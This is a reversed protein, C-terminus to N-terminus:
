IFRIASLNIAVVDGRVTVTIRDNNESLVFGPLKAPMTLLHLTRRLRMAETLLIPVVGAVIMWGLKSLSDSVRAAYCLLVLGACAPAGPM